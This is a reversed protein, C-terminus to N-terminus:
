PKFPGTYRVISGNAQGMDFGRSLYILLNEPEVPLGWTAVPLVHFGRSFGTSIEKDALITLPPSKATKFRVRNATGNSVVSQVFAVDLYPENSDTKQYIMGLGVPETLEGKVLNVTRNSWNIDEPGPYYRLNGNGPGAPLPGGVVSLAFGDLIVLAEGAAWRVEFPRLMVPDGLAATLIRSSALPIPYTDDEPKADAVVVNGAGNQAIAVKGMADIGAPFDLGVMYDIVVPPDQSIDARRVRGQPTGSYETWFIYKGGDYCVGMPNVPPTPAYQGLDLATAKGSDEGSGPKIILVRGQNTAFRDTVLLHYGSFSGSTIYADTMWVPNSLTLARAQVEGRANIEEIQVEEPSKPDFKSDNNQTDYATRFLRGQNTGLQYGQLYYLSMQEIWFALRTPNNLSTVVNVIGIPFPSVSPSPKPSITPGPGPTGTEFPIILGAGSDANGTCGAVALIAVLVLLLATLGFTRRL